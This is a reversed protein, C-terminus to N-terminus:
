LSLGRDRNFAEGNSIAVARALDTLRRESDKFRLYFHIVIFVFTVILLYLLLDTGRGVGVKNSVWSVDEPRLVAYTDMVLFGIFALRKSAQVRVGNASRVFVFLSGAAAVILAYQILM